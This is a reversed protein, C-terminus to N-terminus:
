PLNNSSHFFRQVLVKLWAPFMQFQQQPMASPHHSCLHLTDMAKNTCLLM